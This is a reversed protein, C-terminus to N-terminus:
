LLAITAERPARSQIVSTLSQSVDMGNVQPAIELIFGTSGENIYLEREADYLRWPLLDSIVDNALAQPAAESWDPDDFLGAFIQNLPKLPSTM